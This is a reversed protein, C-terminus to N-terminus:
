ALRLAVPDNLSLGSFFCVCCLRCLCSAPHHDRMPDQLASFLM